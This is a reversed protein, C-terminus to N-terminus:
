GHSSALICGTQFNCRQIHFLKSCMKMLIKWLMLIHHSTYGEKEIDPNRIEGGGWM